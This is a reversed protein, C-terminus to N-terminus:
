ESVKLREIEGELKDLKRQWRAKLEGQNRRELAIQVEKLQRAQNAVKKRLEYIETSQQRIITELDNRSRMVYLAFEELKERSMSKIHEESGFYDSM